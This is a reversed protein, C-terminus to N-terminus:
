RAGTCHSSGLASLAALALFMWGLPNGPQRRAVVIGVAALSVMIIVVVVDSEAERAAVAMPVLAACFLVTLV